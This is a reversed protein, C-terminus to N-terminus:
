PVLDSVTRTEFGSRSRSYPSTGTRSLWSPNEFFSDTVKAASVDTSAAWQCETGQIRVHRARWSPVLDPCRARRSRHIVTRVGAASREAGTPGGQRGALFCGPLSRVSPGMQALSPRKRPPPPREMLALKISQFFSSPFPQGSSEVQTQATRCAIALDSAVEEIMRQLSFEPEIARTVQNLAFKFDRWPSRTRDKRWTLGGPPFRSRM